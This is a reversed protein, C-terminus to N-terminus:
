NSADSFVVLMKNEIKPGILCLCRCLIIDGLAPMESIWCNWKHGLDEPVLRNWNYNGVHLRQVLVKSRMLVLYGMPNYFKFAASM